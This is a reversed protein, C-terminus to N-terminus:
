CHWDVKVPDTEESVAADRLSALIRELEELALQDYCDSAAETGAADYARAAAGYFGFGLANTPTQWVACAVAIARAAAQVAPGQAEQAAKRAAAQLPKTEKLTRVGQATQEAAEMAAELREDAADAKLLVPWYTEKVYGVAWLTLTRRSQTEILRMLEQVPADDIRGLMKRLKAM